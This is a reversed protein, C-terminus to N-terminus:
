LFVLAVQANKQPTCRHIKPVQCLSTKQPPQRAHARRHQQARRQCGRRRRRQRFRRGTQFHFAFLVPVAQVALLREDVPVAVGHHRVVHEVAIGLVFVAPQRRADAGGEVVHVAVMHVCGVAIRGDLVLPGAVAPKQLLAVLVKVAVQHHTFVAVGLLLAGILAHVELRDAVIVRLSPEAPLAAVPRLHHVGDVRLCAVGGLHFVEVLVAVVGQAFLAPRIHLTLVLALLQDLLDVVIGLAVRHVHLARAIRTVLDLHVLKVADGLDCVEVLAIREDVHALAIRAHHLGIVLRVITRGRLGDALFVKVRFLLPDVAALAVRAHLVVVVGVVAHDLRAVVVHVAIGDGAGLAVPAVLRGVGHVALLAVLAIVARVALQHHHRVLAVCRHLIDVFVLAVESLLDVVVLVAVLHDGCVAVAADLVGILQHGLLVLAKELELFELIRLAVCDIGDLLAARLDAVLVVIQFVHDPFVVEVLVAIRHDGGVAVAVLGHVVRRLVLDDALLVKVRLVVADPAVVAILLHAAAVVLVAKGRALRIVVLVAIGHAVVVAYESLHDGVRRQAVRHARLAVVHVARHDDAAASLGVGLAFVVRHAVHDALPVTIHVALM